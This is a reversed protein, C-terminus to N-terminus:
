KYMKSQKKLNLDSYEKFVNKLYDKDNSFYQRIFERYIKKNDEKINEEILEFGLIFFLIFFFINLISIDKKM